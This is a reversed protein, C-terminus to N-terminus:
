TAFDGDFGGFLIFCSDELLLDLNARQIQLFWHGRENLRAWVTGALKGLRPTTAMAPSMHLLQSYTGQNRGDPAASYVLCNRSTRACGEFM